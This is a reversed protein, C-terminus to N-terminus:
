FSQLLERSSVQFWFGIVFARFYSFVFFSNSFFSTEHKGGKTNEHYFIFDSM